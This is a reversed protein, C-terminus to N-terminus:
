VESEEEARLSTVRSVGSVSGLEILLDEVRDPNRLLLRYSLDTGEYGENFRKSACFAKRTHRAFLETLEDLEALMRSWHLNVILDYRHRAGFTTYWLYLMILATLGCGIAATAFRQAGCAMGLVIVALIYATDLTDRLVNRFRVIALVAMLGFATFLNNSLVMLVLAVMVPMLILSSVFSRSYSLGSHTMMYVWSIVHGCLFALLLSLLIIRYDVPGLTNDGRFFTEIM